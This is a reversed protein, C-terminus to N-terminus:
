ASHELSGPAAEDRARETTREVRLAGGRHPGGEPHAVVVLSLSVRTPGM